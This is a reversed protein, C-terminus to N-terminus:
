RKRYDSVSLGAYKKFCTSFYSSDPIGVKEAIEYAMLDTEKLLIKAEEIRIKTLYDMLNIGTERKFIRSLYSANVFFVHAIKTLSLESDSLNEKLYRGIDDILRNLKKVKPQEMVQKDLDTKALRKLYRELSVPNNTALQKKISTYELLAMREEEIDKKLKLASNRVVEDDIPKLIYDKVGAKISRQAYSFDDYGSIVVVKINPHKSIIYGAFEIGDM